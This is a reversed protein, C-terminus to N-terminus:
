SILRQRLQFELAENAAKLQDIKLWADKLSISALRWQGKAYLLKSNVEENAEKCAELLINASDLKDELKENTAELQDLKNKYNEKIIKQARVELNMKDFSSLVNATDGGFNEANNTQYYNGSPDKYTWKKNQAKMDKNAKKLNTETIVPHRM